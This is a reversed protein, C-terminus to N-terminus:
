SYKEHKIRLMTEAEITKDDNETQQFDVSVSFPGPNYGVIVRTQEFDNGAAGEKTYLQVAATFGAMKGAVSATVVDSDDAEASLLAVSAALNPLKYSASVSVDNGTDNGSVSADDVVANAGSVNTAGTFTQASGNSDNVSVALALNGIAPADYRIREERNIDKSANDNLDGGLEWSSLDGALLYTGSFDNESAGDGALSGQGLSIKGLSGGATVENVRNGIGGKTFGFEFSSAYTVGNAVTSSKIRFRSQSTNADGVTLDENGQVTSVGGSQFDELFGAKLNAHGSISMDAAATFSAATLAVALLTKKM